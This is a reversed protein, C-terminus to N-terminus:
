PATIQVVFLGGEIDSGLMIPQGPFKYVGWAGHYGSGTFASTDRNAIIRPRDLDSIDAVVVGEAYHSFYARNGEIQVNHPTGEGHKISARLTPAATGNLTWLKAPVGKPVEETTAVFSGDGSPWINHAFNGPTISWRVLLRPHRPDAIDWVSFASDYGEAVYCRGNRATMDHVFHNQNFTTVFAPNEPDGNLDWVEISGNGANGFPEEDHPLPQGGPAPLNTYRQLYLLGTAPDIDLTHANLQGDRPTFSRVFRVSAPLGGLDIIMVGGRVNTHESCVYAYRGHVRMERWYIGASPTNTPGDLEDVVRPNAPDRLDAVLVGKATGMIAYRSGDPATYGWCGAVGARPVQGLLTTGFNATPALGGGPDGAADAKRGGCGALGALTLLGALLALRAGM